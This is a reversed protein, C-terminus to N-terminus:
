GPRPILREVKWGGGQPAMIVSGAPISPRKDGIAMDMEMLYVVRIQRTVEPEPRAEYTMRGIDVGRLDLRLGELLDQYYSDLDEESATGQRISSMLDFDMGRDVARNLVYAQANDSFHDWVGRHDGKEIATLFREASAQAEALDDSSVPQGNGTM